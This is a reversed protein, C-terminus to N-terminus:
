AATECCKRTSFSARQHSVAPLTRAPDIFQIGLAQRQQAVVKRLQPDPAEEANLFNASFFMLLLLVIAGSAAGDAATLLVIVYVNRNLLREFHEGLAHSTTAQLADRRRVREFVYQDLWADSSPPVFDIHLHPICKPFRAPM